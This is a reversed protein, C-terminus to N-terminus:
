AATKNAQPKKEILLPTGGYAGLQKQKRKNNFKLSVM